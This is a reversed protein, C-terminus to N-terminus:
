QIACDLTPLCRTTSQQDLMPSHANACKSEASQNTWLYDLLRKHAKNVTTEALQLQMVQCPGVVAFLLCYRQHNSFTHFLNHDKTIREKKSMNQYNTLFREGSIITFSFLLSFTVFHVPKSQTNYVLSLHRDVANHLIIFLAVTSPCWRYHHSSSMWHQVLHICLFSSKTGTKYCSLFTWSWSWSWSELDWSWSCSWSKLSRSWSWSRWLDLDVDLNWTTHDYLWM